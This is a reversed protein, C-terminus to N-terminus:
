IGTARGYERRTAQRREIALAMDRHASFAAHVASDRTCGAKPRGITIMVM